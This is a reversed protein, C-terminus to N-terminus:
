WKLIGVVASAYRRFQNNSLSRCTSKKVQYKGGRAYALLQKTLDAMRLAAEEIAQVRSEVNHSSPNIKILEINGIVCTLANNFDHAVGGALTSIAEMKRAQMLKTQLAAKAAEAKKLMTVDTLTFIYEGDPNGPHLEASTFYADFTRGDKCLVRTEMAAITSKELQAFREKGLMEFTEDREFFIRSSKGIIEEARYGTTKLANQNIYNIIRDKTFGIGLPAIDLIMKLKAQSEALSLEALKRDTIDRNSGRVGLYKGDEAYVKQCGYNIWREDGTKTIIRFELSCLKGNALKQHQQDELKERDDPHIINQLLNADNYFEKATYGTIREVSPSVHIFTDDPGIWYEWDYTFEAVIRFKEKSKRLAEKALHQETIDQSVHFAKEIKGNDDFLPASWVTYFKGLIEVEMISAQPKESSILVQFPCNKPPRQQGYFAEYCHRSILEEPSLGTVDITKKNVELIHQEPDLIMAPSDIADFIVQWDM